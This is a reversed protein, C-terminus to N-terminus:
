GQGPRFGDFEARDVIGDANADAMSLRFWVAEPVESVDLAEDGNADFATLLRDFGPRGGRGGPGGQQTEAATAAGSLCVIVALALGGPITGKNM